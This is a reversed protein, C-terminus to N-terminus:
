RRPPTKAVIEFEGAANENVVFWQVSDSNIVCTSDQNLIFMNEKRRIIQM